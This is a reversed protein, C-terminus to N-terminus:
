VCNLGWCNWSKQPTHLLVFYVTHLTLLLHSVHTHLLTTYLTLIVYGQVVECYDTGRLVADQPWLRFAMSVAIDCGRSTEGVGAYKRM